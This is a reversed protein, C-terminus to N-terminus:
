ETPDGPMALRTQSGWAGSAAPDDAEEDEVLAFKGDRADKLWAMAEDYGARYGEPAKGQGAISFAKWLAIARVLDKQRDDSVVYGAIYDAVIAQAEAICQDLPQALGVNALAAELEGQVQDTLMLDAVTFTM